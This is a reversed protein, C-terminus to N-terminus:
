DRCKWVIQSRGSRGPRRLGSDVVLGANRLDSVRKWAGDQPAYGAAEAAQEATLPRLRIQALLRGCMTERNSKSLQDGAAHSTDPDTTRAVPLSALFDALDNSM